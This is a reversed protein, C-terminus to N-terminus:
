SKPLLDAVTIVVKGRAHREGIYRLADATESLPYRKDIVPVVKRAELLGKLFVLDKQSNKASVGGMKKDGTISMMPGLLMAQYIQAPNGGAM